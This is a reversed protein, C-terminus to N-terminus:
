VQGADCRGWMLGSLMTNTSSRKNLKFSGHILCSFREPTHTHTHTHTHETQLTPKLVLLKLLYEVVDLGLPAELVSVLVLDERESWNEQKKETWAVSSFQNIRIMQDSSM